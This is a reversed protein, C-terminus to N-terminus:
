LHNGRRLTFVRDPDTAGDQSGEGGELLHPDAFVLVLLGSGGNDVPLAELGRRKENKETRSEAQLRQVMDHGTNTSCVNTEFEGTCCNVDVAM